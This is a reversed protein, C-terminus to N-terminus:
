PAGAGTDAFLRDVYSELARVGTAPPLADPDGVMDVVLGDLFAALMLAERDPDLRAPAEGTSQAFRLAEACRERIEKMGEAHGRALAPDVAARAIYALWMRSEFVREEDVPLFTALMRVLTTRVSDSPEVSRVREVTREWLHRFAFHLLQDKTQFYRQILGVSTGAAAAVRSLSAGEVGEKAVVALLATAVQRRRHDPEAPKTM